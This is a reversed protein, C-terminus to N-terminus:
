EDEYDPSHNRMRLQVSEIKRTQFKASDSCSMLIDIFIINLHM